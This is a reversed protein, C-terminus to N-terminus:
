PTDELSGEWASASNAVAQFRREILTQEQYDLILEILGRYSKRPVTLAHARGYPGAIDWILGTTLPQAILGRDVFRLVGNLRLCFTERGRLVPDFQIEVRGVSFHIRAAAHGTLNLLRKNVARLAIMGKRM